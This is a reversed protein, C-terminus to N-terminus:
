LQWVHYACWLYFPPLPFSHQLLGQLACVGSLIIPRWTALPTSGNRQTTELDVAPFGLQLQLCSGVRSLGATLKDM